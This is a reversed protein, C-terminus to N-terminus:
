AFAPNIGRILTPSKRGCGKLNMIQKDSDDNLVVFNSSSVADNFTGYIFTLAIIFVVYCSCVVCYSSGM